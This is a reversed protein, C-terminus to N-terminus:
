RAAIVIYIKILYLLLKPSEWGSNCSLKLNNVHWLMTLQEAKTQLNTMCPDYRNVVFGNDMLEMKLKRDFLLASQMLGYLSKYLKIYLVPKGRQHHIVYKQYLPKGQCHLEHLEDKLIMM